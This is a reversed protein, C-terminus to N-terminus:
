RSIDPGHVEELDGQVSGVIRGIAGAYKEGHEGEFVVGTYRIISV